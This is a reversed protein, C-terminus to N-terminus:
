VPHVCLVWCITPIQQEWGRCLGTRGLGQGQTGALVGGDQAPRCGFTQESMGHDPCGELSTRPFLGSTHLCSFWVASDAFLLQSCCGMQPLLPTECASSLERRTKPLVAPSAAVTQLILLTGPALTVTGVDDFRKRTHFPIFHNIININLICM